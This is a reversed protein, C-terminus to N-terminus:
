NRTAEMLRKRHVSRRGARHPTQGRTTLNLQHWQRAALVTVAPKAGLYVLPMGIGSAASLFLDQRHGRPRGCVRQGLLQRQLRFSRVEGGVTPVGAIATVASAQLSATCWNSTKHHSPDGFSLENSCNSTRGDYLMIGYSAASAENGRRPLNSTLRITIAKWKSFLANDTAVDVIGTKV